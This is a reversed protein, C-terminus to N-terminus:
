CPGRSGPAWPLPTSRDYLIVREVPASAVPREAVERLRDDTTGTAADDDM